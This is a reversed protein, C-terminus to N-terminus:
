RYREIIKAIGHPGPAEGLIAKLTITLFDILPGYPTGDLRRSYALKGGLPGVWQELLSEYLLLDRVPDSRGSIPARGMNEYIFLWDQLWQEQPKFSFDPAPKLSVPAGPKLLPDAAFCLVYGPLSKVEIQLNRIQQLLRELRKRIKAPPGHSKRSVTVTWYWRGSAELKQRVASWDVGDPWDDRVSRIAQWDEETFATFTM